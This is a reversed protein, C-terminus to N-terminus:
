ECIESISLAAKAVAREKDDEIDMTQAVTASPLGISENVPDRATTDPATQVEKMQLQLRRALIVFRSTRRLIDSAQQFKKLRTV